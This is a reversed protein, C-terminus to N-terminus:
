TMTYQENSGHGGSVKVPKTPPPLTGMKTYDELPEGNCVAAMAALDQKGELHPRKAPPAGEELKLEERCFQVLLFM